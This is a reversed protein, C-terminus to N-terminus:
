DYTLNSSTKVHESLPIAIGILLTRRLNRDFPHICYVIVSVPDGEPQDSATYPSESRSGIIRNQFQLHAKHPNSDFAQDGNRTSKTRELEHERQFRQARRNLAAQDNLDTVYAPTSNKFTAKKAKKNNVTPTEISYTPGQILM